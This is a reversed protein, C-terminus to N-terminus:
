VCASLGDKVRQFVAKRLASLALRNRPRGPKKCINAAMAATIHINNKCKCLKEFANCHSYYLEYLFPRQGAGHHEARGHVQQEGLNRGEHGEAM